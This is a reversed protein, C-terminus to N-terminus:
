NCSHFVERALTDRSLGRKQLESDSLRRLSDYLAAAAWYDACSQVWAAFGEAASRISSSLSATAESVITEHVVAQKHFTMAFIEERKSRFCV